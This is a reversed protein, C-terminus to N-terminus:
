RFVKDILPTICVRAWQDNRAYEPLDQGHAKLLFLVESKELKWGTSSSLQLIMQDQLHAYKRPLEGPGYAKLLEVGLKLSFLNKFWQNGWLGPLAEKSFVGGIRHYYVGFIKSLSFFIMDICEKKLDLPHSVTTAGVYCLDVRVSKHDKMTELFSPFDKWFCGDIASPQSIYFPEHAKIGKLDKFHERDHKITTLGYSTALAEYGEYEGNFVHIKGRPHLSAYYALSERIAESSGATPYQFSLDTLSVEKSIWKRYEQFFEQHSKEQHGEYARHYLHLPSQKWLNKLIEETEPYILSYVTKSLDSVM